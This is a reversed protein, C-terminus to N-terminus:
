NSKETSRTTYQVFLINVNMQYCVRWVVDPSCPDLSLLHLATPVCSQSHFTWIVSFQKRHQHYQQLKKWPVNLLDDLASVTLCHELPLLTFHFPRSMRVTLDFVRFFPKRTYDSMNKSLTRPPVSKLPMVRREFVLVIWKYAVSDLKANLAFCRDPVNLQRSSNRERMFDVYSHCRSGFINLSNSLIQPSLWMLEAELTCCRTNLGVYM